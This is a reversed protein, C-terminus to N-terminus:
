TIRRLALAFVYIPNRDKRPWYFSEYSLEHRVSIWHIVNPHENGDSSVPGQLAM